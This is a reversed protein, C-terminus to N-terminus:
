EVGATASNIAAIDAGLDLGDTGANHYPSTSMLQYNGGNGNNYNVFQVASASAPFFNGSPWLSPPFSSTSAVVANSAFSYPSFCANFTTLPKDYYACNTSGGGSSWVPYTGANVISNTFFFNKMQTSVAVMDGVVFMTSSPFATVHNITVNQLVPAGASVLVEAFESPGDYTVGNIDDIVIDHISYREGDFAANGYDSLANAIQLGAGVHSISDYRITVDTVQCIPCPSTSGPNKPSLLIAFGVQSFGGWTDDMINGDILVRQANKLEVFNKVIFPNGNAGGVYGPQGKM